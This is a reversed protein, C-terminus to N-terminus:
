NFFIPSKGIVLKVWKICFFVSGQKDEFHKMFQPLHCQALLLRNGLMIKTPIKGTNKTNNTKGKASCTKNPISYVGPQVKFNKLRKTKEPVWTVDCLM